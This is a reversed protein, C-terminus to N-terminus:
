LFHREQLLNFDISRSSSISSYLQGNTRQFGSNVANANGKQLACSIKIRWLHLLSAHLKNATIPDVDALNNIAHSALSKLLSDGPEGIRGFAEVSFPFFAIGADRSVAEYIARKRNEAARNASGNTAAHRALLVPSTSVPNTVTVDASIPTEFARSTALIDFRVVSPSPRHPLAAPVTYNLETQTHAGTSRLINNLVELIANHRAIILGGRGCRLFHIGSNDPIVGCACPGSSTTSLVNTPLGIRLQIATKFAQATFKCGQICPLASLFAGSGPGACSRLRAQDSLPMSSLLSLFRQNYVKSSIFHQLKKTPMQLMAHITWPQHLIPCSTDNLQARTQEWSQQAESFWSIRHFGDTHSQLRILSPSLGPRQMLDQAASASSAIFAPHCIARLSTIGLGGLRIPLHIQATQSPSLDPHNALRGVCSALLSDATQMFHQFCPDSPPICRALHIARAAACYRLILFAIQTSPLSTVLNSFAFLKNHTRQLFQNTYEQSGMPVGVLTMGQVQQVGSPLAANNSIPSNSLLVESKHPVVEIGVRALEETVIGWAEVLRAPPVAVSLDDIIAGLFCDPLREKINTLAKSFALCFLFSGAPDGQQAGQSSPITELSGDQMFYWLPTESAYWMNFFRSLEPFSRALEDLFIQRDICNFANKGDVKLLAVPIDTCDLHAIVHKVFVECSSPTSIGYQTPGVAEKWLQKYHYAIAKTTIRRTSDAVAIPRIGQNSEKTLAYLKSVSLIRQIEQPIDSAIISRLFSMFAGLEPSGNEPLLIKFHEYRWGTIGPASQKPSQRIAEVFDAESIDPGRPTHEPLEPVRLPATRRPHLEHLAHLTSSDGIAM